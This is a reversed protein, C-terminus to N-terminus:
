AWLPPTRWLCLLNDYFSCSAVVPTRANLSHELRCWDVGYAMSAHRTYKAVVGEAIGPVDSRSSVNLVRVGAHMCAALLIDGRDPFPYWKLRWVGGGTPFTSVPCRVSRVDWIRVIEDYSGSHM